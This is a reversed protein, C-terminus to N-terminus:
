TVAFLLLKLLPAYFHFWVRAKIQECEIKLNSNPNEFKVSLKVIFRYLIIPSNRAIKPWERDLTFLYVVVYSVPM